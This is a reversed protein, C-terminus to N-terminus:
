VHLLDKISHIKLEKLSLFHLKFVINLSFKM